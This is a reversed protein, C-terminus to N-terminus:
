KSLGTNLGSHFSSGPASGEAARRKPISTALGSSQHKERTGAGGGSSGLRSRAGGFIHGGGSSASVTSRGSSNRSLHAASTAANGRTSTGKPSLYGSASEGGASPAGFASNRGQTTSPATRPVANLTSGDRWVGRPQASSGFSGKGAGWSSGGGSTAGHVSFSAGATSGVRQANSGFHTSVDQQAGVEYVSMFCVIVSLLIAVQTSRKRSNM